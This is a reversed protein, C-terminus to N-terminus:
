RVRKMTIVSTDPVPKGDMEQRVSQVTITDPDVRTVITTATMLSGSALVSSVSNVWTNDAQKAWAGEGYGGDAEFSWSRILKNAADWGIRQMGNDLVEDGVTVARSAIIFNQDPTWEFLVRAAQGDEAEQAWEGIVWELPRLHEYASPPTYPRERVSTLLWKGDKKVFFNTYHARNPLGGDPSMVSTAGDEIATDPTPFRLSTMEIRLRLSKNEAFLEAFDKAIAERGKVVRGAMDVYDGDPTWFAALANADGKQFAEVFAEATKTIAARQAADADGAAAAGGSTLGAALAFALRAMRFASTTM